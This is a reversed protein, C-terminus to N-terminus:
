KSCQTVYSNCNGSPYAGQSSMRSDCQTGKHDPQYYQVASPQSMYPTGGYSPVAVFSANGGFTTPRNGCDKYYTGLTAFKCNSTYKGRYEYPTTM